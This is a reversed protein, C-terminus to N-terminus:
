GRDHMRHERRVARRYQRQRVFAVLFALVGGAVAALLLAGSLPVSAKWWLFKVAAKQTNQIVFIATAFGLVLLAVTIWQITRTRQGPETPGHSPPVGASTRSEAGLDEREPEPKMPEAYGEEGLGRGRTAGACPSRGRHGM